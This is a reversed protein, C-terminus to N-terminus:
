YLLEWLRSPEPNLSYHPLIKWVYESRSHLGGLTWYLLYQPEKRPYPPQPKDKVAWCWRAVFILPSLYVKIDGLIGEHCTTSHVKCCYCLITKFNQNIKKKVQKVLM